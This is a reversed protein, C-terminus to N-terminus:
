YAYELDEIASNLLDLASECNSYEEEVAIYIHRSVSDLELDFKDLKESYRCMEDNEADRVSRLLWLASRVM